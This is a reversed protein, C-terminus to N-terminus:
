RACGELFLENKEAVLTARGSFPLTVIPYTHGFDLNAVVPKNKLEPLAAIIQTLAERTITPAGAFRGICLGRIKDAGCLSLLHDLEAYFVKASTSTDDVFLLKGKLNPLWGLTASCLLRGMHGVITEGRARGEQLIWAGPNPQWQSQEGVWDKYEPSPKLSWSFDGSFVKRLSEFTPRGPERSFDNFGPAYFAPMGQKHAWALILTNDSMGFIPKKKAPRYRRLLRALSMQMHGGRTTWVADVTPDLLAEDLERLREQPTGACEGCVDLGAPHEEGSLFGMSLELKPFARYISDFTAQRGSMPFAAYMQSPSILRVKKIEM